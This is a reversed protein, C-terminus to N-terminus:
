SPTMLTLLGLFVFSILGGWSERPQDKARYAWPSAFSKRVKMSPPPGNASLPHPAKQRELESLTWLAGVLSADVSGDIIEYLHTKHGSEILHAALPGRRTDAEKV